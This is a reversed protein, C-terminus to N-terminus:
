AGEVVEGGWVYGGGFTPRVLRVAQVRQAPTMAETALAPSLHLCVLAGSAASADRDLAVMCAPHAVLAADLGATSAGLWWLPSLVEPTVLVATPEGTEPDPAGEEYVAEALVVQVPTVGTPNWPGVHDALHAPRRLAAPAHKIADAESAFAFLYDIQSM